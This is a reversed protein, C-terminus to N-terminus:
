LSFYFVCTGRITKMLKYISVICAAMCVLYPLHTIWFWYFDKAVRALCQSAVAVLDQTTSTQLIAWTRLWYIVQYIFPCSSQKKGFGLDNKYLWLSWCMAEAGLLMSLDKLWPRFMNAVSYPRVLSYAAHIISWVAQCFSMLFYTGVKRM